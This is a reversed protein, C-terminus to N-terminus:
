KSYKKLIMDEHKAVEEEGLVSVFGERFSSWNRFVMEQAAKVQLEKRKRYWNVVM